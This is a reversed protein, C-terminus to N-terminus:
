RHKKEEENEIVGLIKSSRREIYGGKNSYIAKRL